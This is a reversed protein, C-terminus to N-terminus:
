AKTLEAVPIEWEGEEDDVVTAMDEEVYEIVGQVEEGEEGEFTVRAGPRLAAAKKKAPAKKKAAAKKRPPPSPEEEEEEEEPEEEEEEEEEAAAPAGGMSEVADLPMYGTVRPRPQEEYDENIVELGVELGEMGDIDLEYEDDPIEYGACELMTRLVWLSQPQLSFNDFVTSGLSTKWRIALYPEGSDGGVEQEIHKISATYYGDPTPIGGGSEVDTFDITIVNGKTKRGRKAPARKKAPAKKRAAAM